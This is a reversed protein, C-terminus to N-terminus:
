RVPLEHLPLENGDDDALTMQPTVKIGMRRYHDLM